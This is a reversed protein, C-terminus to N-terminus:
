ILGYYRLIKEVIQYFTWALSTHKIVNWLQKLRRKKETIDRTNIIQYAISQIQYPNISIDGKPTVALIRQAITNILHANSNNVVLDVNNDMLCSDHFTAHSNILEVGTGCRRVDVRSLLVNSNIAEIGKNFGRITVNRLFIRSSKDLKIATAM